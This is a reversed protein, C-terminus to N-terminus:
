ARPPTPAVVLLREETHERLAARLGERGLGSDKVGGYPMHDIRFSPADNVILAGVVVRDFASLVAGLDRTFLGCQLGYRSRNVRAIAEDLGATRDLNVTPGFAEETALKSDPPVNELVTPPVLAGQRPGGV